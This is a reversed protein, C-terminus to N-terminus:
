SVSPATRRLASNGEGLLKVLEDNIIKVVQQGPSVSKLVDQGLCANKVEDIFERAVRFHVDASLLAKRVETLAESVNDETLKSKGGITRLIGSLKDTLNEFM